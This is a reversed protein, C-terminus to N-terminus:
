WLHFKLSDILLECSLFDSYQFFFKYNLNNYLFYLGANTKKQLFLNLDFFRFFFYIGNFRWMFFFGWYARSSLALLDNILFFLPFYCRKDKLSVQINFSYSTSSFSTITSFKTFFCRKGFYFRFLYFYNFSRPDDLQLLKNVSIFVLLSRLFPIMFTNYFYIYKQLLLFRLVHKYTFFYDVKLLM